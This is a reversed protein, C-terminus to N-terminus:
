DDRQWFRPRRQSLEWYAYRGVEGIGVTVEIRCDTPDDPEEDLGPLHRSSLSKIEVRFAEERSM